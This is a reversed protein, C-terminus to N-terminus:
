HKGICIRYGNRKRQKRWSITEIRRWIVYEESNEAMSEELRKRGSTIM